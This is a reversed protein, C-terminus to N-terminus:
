TSNSDPLKVALTFFTIWKQRPLSPINIYWEGLDEPNDELVGREKHHAVKKLLPYEEILKDVTERVIKEDRDIFLFFAGPSARTVLLNIVKSFNAFNEKIESVMYCFMFLNISNFRTAFHEFDSSKTADLPLFSKSILTAWEHRDQGYTEKLQLDVGQKLAHWSEDWEKIKDILLFDLFVPKKLKLNEIYRVVGLLESGPGGGIACVHLEEGMEAKLRLFPEFKEGFQSIGKEVLGAHVAVNMYLYAMRCFPDEYNIQPNPLRWRESNDRIFEETRTFAEEKSLGQSSCIVDRTQSLVTQLVSFHRITM